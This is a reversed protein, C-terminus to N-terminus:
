VAIEYKLKGHNKYDHVIFNDSTWNLVGNFNPIELTPLSMPERELQIKATEIHNEYIHVDGLMGCVRGPKKNAELAILQLLLSYSAINFPIGLCYDCSRQYWNLNVTELNEGTCVIQFLLHCPPLAMQNLEAPNWASVIMRRDDPNTKIKNLINALQDVGNFDRWQVGYIRGLDDEQAMKKKTEEDNGYPVKKPNCWEDWIHCKRDQLWKKSNLGKIFFELETAIMKLSVHKTTLLPFGKSMDHELMAGSISKTRIGTRNPKFEGEKLIRELIELYNKM